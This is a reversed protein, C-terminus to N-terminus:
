ARSGASTCAKQGEGMGLSALLMDYYCQAASDLDAWVTEWGTAMESASGLREREREIYIYIYTDFTWQPKDVKSM